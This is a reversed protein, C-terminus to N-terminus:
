TSRAVVRGTAAPTAAMMDTYTAAAEGSETRRRLRTQPAQEKTAILHALFAAMPRRSAMAGRESPASAEVAVLARGPPPQEPAPLLDSAHRRNRAISTAIPKGIDGVARV